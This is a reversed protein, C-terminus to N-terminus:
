RSASRRPSRRRGPRGARCRRSRCARRPTWRVPARGDLRDLLQLDQAGREVHAVAAEGPPQHVHDGARARVAPFSRDGAIELVLREGALVRGAVPGSKEVMSSVTVRPPGSRGRGPPKRGPGRGGAIRRRVPATSRCPCSRRRRNAPSRRGGPPGRDSGPCEGRCRGHRDRPSRRRQAACDRRAVDQGLDGSQGASFWRM